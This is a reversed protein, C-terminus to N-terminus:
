GFVFQARQPMIMLDTLAYVMSDLPDPSDSSGPQWSCLQDELEALM